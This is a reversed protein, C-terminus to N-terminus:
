EEQPAAAASPSRTAKPVAPVSALAFCSAMPSHMLSPPLFHSTSTDTQEADPLELEETVGAGGGTGFAMEQPAIAYLLM